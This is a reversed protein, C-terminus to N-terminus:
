FTGNPLLQQLLKKGEAVHWKSTGVSIGTMAAIEKHSYGEILFLNIVMRTAPPLRQLLALLDKYELPQHGEYRAIHEPLEATIVVPSKAKNSRFHEAVANTMIKRLWGEFSGQFAYQDIHRFAKLFGNNLIHFATERDSTYRRVIDMMVGAYRRYLKEQFARENRRCGEILAPLESDHSPDDAHGPIHLSDTRM